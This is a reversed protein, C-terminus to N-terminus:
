MTGSRGIGGNPSIFYTNNCGSLRCWVYYTNNCGSLVRTFITRVEVMREATVGYKKEKVTHEM